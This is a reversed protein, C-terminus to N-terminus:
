ALTYLHWWKRFLGLASEGPDLGNCTVVGVQSLLKTHETPLPTFSPSQQRPTQKTWHWVFVLPISKHTFWHSSIGVGGRGPISLYGHRHRVRSTCKSGQTIRLRFLSVNGHANQQVSWWWTTLRQWVFSFYYHSFSKRSIFHICTHWLSSQHVVTVSMQPSVHLKM